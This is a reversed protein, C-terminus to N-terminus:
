VVNPTQWFAVPDLGFVRWDACRLEREPRPLYFIWSELSLGDFGVLTQNLAVDGDLGCGDRM